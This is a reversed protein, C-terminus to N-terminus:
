LHKNCVYGADGLLIYEEMEGNEGIQGIESNRLIYGDNTGGPFRPDVFTLM